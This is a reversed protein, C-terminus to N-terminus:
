TAQAYGGTRPFSAILPRAPPLRANLIVFPRRAGGMISTMIAMLARM